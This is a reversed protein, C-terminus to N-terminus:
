VATAAASAAAGSNPNSRLGTSPCIEGWLFHRIEFFEINAASPAPPTSPFPLAKEGDKDSLSSLTPKGGPLRPTLRLSDRTQSAGGETCVAWPRPGSVCGGSQGRERALRVGWTLRTPACTLLSRALLDDSVHAHVSARPSVPSVPHVGPAALHLWTGWLGRGASVSGRPHPRDM